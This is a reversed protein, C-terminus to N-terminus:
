DDLYAAIGAETIRHGAPQVHEILGRRELATGVTVIADRSVRPYDAELDEITVAKDRNRYYNCLLASEQPTM